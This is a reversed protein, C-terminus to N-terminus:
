DRPGVRGIQAIDSIAEAKAASSASLYAALEEAPLGTDVALDLLGRAVEAPSARGEILAAVLQVVRLGVSLPNV